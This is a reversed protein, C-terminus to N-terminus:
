SYVQSPFLPTTMDMESAGFTWIGTGFARLEAKPQFALVPPMRGHSFWNKKKLCHVLKWHNQHMQKKKKQHMKWGYKCCSKCDNPGNFRIAIMTQADVNKNPFLTICYVFPVYSRLPIRHCAAVPLNTHAYQVNQANKLRLKRDIKCDIVRIPTCPLCPFM